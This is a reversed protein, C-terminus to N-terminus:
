EPMQVIPLGLARALPELKNPSRVAHIEAILGDRLRLTNLSDVAGDVILLIAAESALDIVRFEPAGQGGGQLQGVLHLYVQVIRAATEIPRIAASVVGGGDHVAVADSAFAAKLAERDGRQLAALMSALVERLADRDPPDFRPAKGLRSKARHYYQRCTDPQADLVAGITRFDDGLAERLVLTTREEPSLREHMLLVGQTLDQLREVLDEDDTYLPEPLWPGPYEDRQRRRLRDICLRGVVTTLWADPRDPIPSQAALRVWADQVVDEADSVSGLMRYALAFLRRRQGEFVEALADQAIM